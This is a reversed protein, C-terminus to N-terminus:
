GTKLADEPSLPGQENGESKEGKEGIAYIVTTHITTPVRIRQRM